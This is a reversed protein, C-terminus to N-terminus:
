SLNDLEKEFDEIHGPIDDLSLSDKTMMKIAAIENSTLARHAPDENEDIEALTRAAALLLAIHYKPDFYREEKDEEKEM